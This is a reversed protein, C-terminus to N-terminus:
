FFRVRDAERAEEDHKTLTKRTAKSEEDSSDEMAEIDDELASRYPQLDGSEVLVERKQSSIFQEFLTGCM